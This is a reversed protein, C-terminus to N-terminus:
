SPFCALLHPFVLGVGEAVGEAVGVGGGGGAALNSVLILQASLLRNGPFMQALRRREASDPYFPLTCSRHQLHNSPPTATPQRARTNKHTRTHTSM